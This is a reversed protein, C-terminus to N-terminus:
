AVNERNGENLLTVRARRYFEYTVRYDGCAALASYAAVWNRVEHASHGAVVDMEDATYDDFNDVRGSRCVDLFARDWRRRFPLQESDPWRSHLLSPPGGVTEIQPRNPRSPNPTSSLRPPPPVSSKRNLATSISSSFRM